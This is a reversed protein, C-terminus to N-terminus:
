FYAYHVQYLRGSFLRLHASNCLVVCCCLLVCMGEKHKATLFILKINQVIINVRFLACFQLFLNLPCIKFYRGRKSAICKRTGLAIILCPHGTFANVLICKARFISLILMRRRHYMQSRLQGSIKSYIAM